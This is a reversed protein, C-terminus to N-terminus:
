VQLTFLVLLGDTVKLDNAVKTFDDANNSVAIELLNLNEKLKILFNKEDNKNTATLIDETVSGMGYTKGSLLGCTAALAPNTKTDLFTNYAGKLGSIAATFIQPNFTEKGVYKQKLQNLLDSTIETSVIASIVPQDKTEAKNKEQQLTQSIQPNNISDLDPNAGTAILTDVDRQSLGLISQVGIVSEKLAGVLPNFFPKKDIDNMNQVLSNIKDGTVLSGTGKYAVDEDNPVQWKTGNVFQNSSYTSTYDLIPERNGYIYGYNSQIQQLRENEVRFDKNSNLTDIKKNSLRVGLDTKEFGAVKDSTILTDGSFTRINSNNQFFSIAEIRRTYNSFEPRIFETQDIKFTPVVSGTAGASSPQVNQLNGEFLKSPSLKERLKELTLQEYNLRQRIATLDAQMAYTLGSELLTWELQVRNVLAFVDRNSHYVPTNPILYLIPPLRNMRIGFSNLIEKKLVILGFIKLRAKDTIWPFFKSEISIGNRNLVNPLQFLVTKRALVLPDGSGIALQGFGASFLYSSKLDRFNENYSITASLGEFQFFSEWVPGYHSPILEYHPFDIVVDGNGNVWWFYDLREMIMTLIQARTETTTEYSTTQFKLPELGGNIGWGYKPTRLAVTVTKGHPSYIGEWGSNNGIVTVEDYTLWPNLRDNAANLCEVADADFTNVGNDYNKLSSKPLGNSFGVVCKKHWNAMFYEEYVWDIQKNESKVSQNNLQNTVSNARNLWAYPTMLKFYPTSTDYLENGSKNRKISAADAGQVNTARKYIEWTVFRLNKALVENIPVSIAGKRTGAEKPLVDNKNQEASAILSDLIAGNTVDSKENKQNYWDTLKSIKQKTENTKNDDITNEQIVKECDKIVIDINTIFKPVDELTIVIQHDSKRNIMNSSKYVNTINASPVDWEEWYEISFNWSRQNPNGFQGAKADYTIYFAYNQYSDTFTVISSNFANNVRQTGVLQPPITDSKLDNVLAVKDDSVKQAKPQVEQVKQKLGEFFNKILTYKQKKFDLESSTKNRNMLNKPLYPRVQYKEVGIADKGAANKSGPLDLLNKNPDKPDEADSYQYNKATEYKSLIDKDIRNLRKVLLDFTNNNLNFAVTDKVFKELIESLSKNQDTKTSPNEQNYDEIAKRTKRGVKGDVDQGSLGVKKQIEKIQEVTKGKTDLETNKIDTTPSLIETVKKKHKEDFSDLTEVTTDFLTAGEKDFIFKHITEDENPKFQYIVKNPDEGDEIGLFLGSAPAVLNFKSKSQIELNTGQKENVDAKNVEDQIANYSPNSLLTTSGMESIKYPNEKSADIKQNKQEEICLIKQFNKLTYNYEIKGQAQLENIKKNAGQVNQDYTQLTKSWYADKESTGNKWKTFWDTNIRGNIVNFKPRYKVEVNGKSSKELITEYITNSIQEIAIYPDIGDPFLDGLNLLNIGTRKRYYHYAEIAWAIFHSPVTNNKIEPPVLLILKSKQNTNLGVSVIPGTYIKELKNREEKKVIFEELDITKQNINNENSYSSSFIVSNGLINLYEKAGSINLINIIKGEENYVSKTKTSDLNRIADIKASAGNNWDIAYQYEKTSNFNISFSNSNTPFGFTGPEGFKRDKGLNQIAVPFEKEKKGTKEKYLEFFSLNKFYDIVSTSSKTKTPETIFEFINVYDVAGVSQLNEMAVITNNAINYAPPDFLSVDTNETSVFLLTSKDTKTYIGPNIKDVKPLKIVFATEFKKKEDPPFQDISFNKIGENDIKTENKVFGNLMETNKIEYFNQSSVISNQIQLKNVNDYWFKGAHFEIRNNNDDYAFLPIGLPQDFLGVNSQTSTSKQDTKPIWQGDSYVWDKLKFHQGTLSIEKITNKSESGQYFYGEKSLFVGLAYQRILEERLGQEIEDKSLVEGAEIVQPQKLANESELKLAEDPYGTRPFEEKTLYFLRPDLKGWGRKYLFDQYRDLAGKTFEFEENVFKNQDTQDNNATPTKFIVTIEDNDKAYYKGEGRVELEAPDKTSDSPLAVFKLSTFDISGKNLTFSIKANSKPTQGQEEKTLERLGEIATIYENVEVDIEIQGTPALKFDKESYGSGLSDASKVSLLCGKKLIGAEGLSLSNTKRINGITFKIKAPELTTKTESTKNKLTSNIVYSLVLLKWIISTSKTKAWSPDNFDKNKNNNWLKQNEKNYQDAGKDELNKKEFNLDQLRSIVQSLNPRLISNADSGYALLFDPESVKSDKGSTSGIIGSLKEYPTAFEKLNPSLGSLEERYTLDIDGYFLFSVLRELTTNTILSSYLTPNVVDKYLAYNDTLNLIDKGLKADSNINESIITASPARQNKDDLNSITFAFPNGLFRAKNLKNAITEFNLSITDIGGLQNSSVDVSNIYGTYIPLWADDETWPVHAFIKVTDSTHIICNNVTLNWTGILTKEEYLNKSKKYDYLAKKVQESSRFDENLNWNNLFVNEHTLTFLDNPCIITMSNGSEKVGPSADASLSLRNIWASVEIGMIFVRIHPSPLVGVRDIGEGKTYLFPFPIPDNYRAIKQAEAIYRDRYEDKSLTKKKEVSPTPALQTETTTTEAANKVTLTESANPYSTIPQAETGIVPDLPTGFPSYMTANKLDYLPANPM